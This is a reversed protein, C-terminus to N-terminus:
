IMKKNLYRTDSGCPLIETVHHDDYNNNHMTFFIRDNEVNRPNKEQNEQRTSVGINNLFLDYKDIEGFGRGQIKNPNTTYISTDLNRRKTNDWYEESAKPIKAATIENSNISMIESEKDLTSDRSSSKYNNITTKNLSKRRTSDSFRLESDGDTNYNQGLKNGFSYFEKFNNRDTEIYKIKKDQNNRISLERDLTNFSTNSEISNNKM